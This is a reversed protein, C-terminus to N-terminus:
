GHIVISFFAVTKIAPEYHQTRPSPSEPPTKGKERELMNMIILTLSHRPRLKPPFDPGTRDRSYHLIHVGASRCYSSMPELASFSTTVLFDVPLGTRWMSESQGLGTPTIYGAFARALFPQILYQCQPM